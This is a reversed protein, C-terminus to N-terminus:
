PIAGRQAESQRSVTAMDPIPGFVEAPYTRWEGDILGGYGLYRWADPSAAIFRGRDLDASAVEGGPLHCLLARCSGTAVDWLRVMRDDGGTALWRGDPSFGCARVGGAHGEFRHAETRGAVDWLRATRDDGGTALWRGDPSFGCARVGGAHGEFRHAETRGAVD